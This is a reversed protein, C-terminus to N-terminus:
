EVVIRVGESHATFEPAYMCQITTIGNSFNGSHTVFLPYEFVYTGKRLYDFFFNTSADRTTEYYGLGGQWRYGSLVNVPELASARMDKMHVYEMDRDVRLEIRVKIKDGVKVSTGEEVPTLVPGRDTNREIFLKKALQLPTAATTIKDLEEFYQWYVAGWSSQAAPSGAPQKVTVSINGMEPKIFNPEIKRKFYGTGAETKNDANSTTLSGLKIEVSPESDLWNTGRLLMAYCADATAKTTGWNNIQKNRILWTRLDDVTKLDKGAESFAEILVSQTEIPAHYWYWSRGRENDKWYMGLEEHVIATEKLSKLIAAPTAADGTRHLAMAAMGQSQKDLRTWFQQMQKRYYNYAPQASAAVPNRAFFSRMYFYQVQMPGIHQKALDAKSRKLQEYDNRLKSDLYTLARATISALEGSGQPFAELRGVRGIGTMIYQTIYRDDNGGRFWPFAGNSMQMEALKHLNTKLESSMRMVDFLLALNKKRQEETKAELVWPTEELLVSKLEPNKQLNSLLAASDMNKWQDFIKRIRPASNAIRTALANAYFRNWTQEACEYPFEMLYPLAQIAYWAPNSTYEVTLGHHQLTESQNETLKKFTFTKTGTGRMPLPLTETVLMRNTLVPMAMEEGDSVKGSRAIVRWVLSSTYQHPVQIPFKVVESQGAAVTFYQNPFSNIFWGDVSQNTAADVLQLEAQGTMEKDTLNVIKASFEMRDGQRLFRPANPQVMLEKQTVLEKQALGFALQKTHAFTQLKWRTLAEPATFSFEISGDAATRLEPFFFATENFNRRVQIAPDANPQQQQQRDQPSMWSSATTDRGVADAAPSAMAREELAMSRAVPPAATSFNMSQEKAAATTRGVTAKMRMRYYTGNGFLEDLSFALRDYALDQDDIYRLDEMKEDSQVHWFNLMSNWPGRRGYAAENPNYRPWIDPKEWSHPRFQDLSADYMSALMEAAVAENKNGTIRVKWKEGSGPLTKDRFTAYEINLEKNSWPVDVIDSTEYFRNHKVFFFNVGFGGRDGETVPYAFTRNENNLTFFNFPGTEEEVVEQKIPRNNKPVPLSTNMFKKKDVENVVFVNDASTGIVVKATDGPETLRSPIFSLYQPRATRNGSSLEVYRVDKIEQGERDRATIEVEYFGADLIKGVPWVGNIRTSDSQTLVVAEKPWSQPQSENDYEDHPFHRIFEERSMVFQDPRQWFRKRLLRQEPKLKSIVMKIQSPQYEGNMNETRITINRLSDAPLREALDVKLVLSKYAAQVTKSASRTEGNIDTVDVDINYDFVPELKPDITKDPIAQFTITFKGEADTVTEGHAIEMPESPPLWKWTHWPYIFRPQRVVRYRVKSGDVNNGAYAKAFGTLKVQDNVKYADKIKEFDVYFKPRKYEEVSFYVNNSGARDELSFNGNLLNAPLTFKGSFSGFENTTVEMSDIREHNADKLYIKTKYQTAISSQSGNNNVAIGKFHVIQGPRYISRDTFFFIRRASTEDRRDESYYYNYIIEDLYLRDNGHRIDFYYGNYDNSKQVPMTFFGNGDTKHSSAKVRQYRGLKSDYVQRYMDIGAGPLPRGTERHLVFFQNGRNIYSIASVYFLRAGAPERTGFSQGTSALLIYEGAPLSDIKIEVNHHQLDNTAPFSQTWSRIASAKSLADWRKDGYERLLNKLQDTAKVVRLHLQTVNKYKVLARFPQGPVNVKELNFSFDRKQIEQLLNYSNAWAANKQSSDRVVGELIERAKLRAFRHTTDGDPQYTDAKTNHYLALLYWAQRAAPNRGYTRTMEELAKLYLEDKNTAVSNQHVFELRDIDLAILADPKADDLHFRTLEQFVLLAKHQLSLTDRTAFSFGAFQRAPAYAEPQSIEFAYAPKPLDGEGTRFYDLAEHALLDYLTPRLHRANGKVIIASYPELPTSKLIRDNEISALYLNSITRHFDSLTWTAPDTKKFDVTQTRDYMNWRHRQFYLWYKKALLSKLLSAAPEKASAIEKEVEAISKLENDERIEEQIDTMYVLAKIVQATKSQKKAQEYIKKVETLASQPLKKTYLLDDVKKWQAEYDGSQAFVRSFSLLLLALFGAIRIVSKYM